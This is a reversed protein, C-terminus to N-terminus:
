VTRGGRSSFGVAPLDGLVKFSYKRHGNRVEVKTERHRVVEPKTQSPRDKPGPQGLPPPERCLCNRAGLAVPVESFRM